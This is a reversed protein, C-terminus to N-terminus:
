YDLNNFPTSLYIVTENATEDYEEAINVNVKQGACMVSDKISDSYAYITFLDGTRNESVIEADSATLLNNAIINKDSYNMGGKVTGKFNVIVRGDIEEAEFIDKILDRYSAVCQINNNLNLSISVYQIDEYYTGYDETVTIVKIITDANKSQKVLIKESTKGEKKDEIVYEPELGMGAALKTLVTNKEEDTMHKKGYEGFGTVSGEVREFGTKEFIGAVDKTETYIGSILKVALVLWIVLATGIGIKQM